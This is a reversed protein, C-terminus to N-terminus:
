AACKANGDTAGMAEMDRECDGCVLRLNPKGWANCECEPCTFKVKSAPRPKKAKGFQGEWCLWPLHHESPMKAFAIAFPGGEMIDHTVKYGVHSGPKDLSRPMLGIEEMKAAWQMNHYGDRGPKGFEEQWHHAMEHVLTSATDRQPRSKLHAPNLSIENAVKKGDASWRKPAFFGLTNAARSFNLLAPPLQGRFLAANFYDFMAQFAAFQAPTPAADDTSPVLPGDTHTTMGRNYNQDHSLAIGYNLIRCPDANAPPIHRNPEPATIPTTLAWLREATALDWRPSSRVPRGMEDLREVEAIIAARAARPAAVLLAEQGINDGNIRYGLRAGSNMCFHEMSSALRHERVYARVGRLEVLTIQSRLLPNFAQRLMRAELVVLEGRARAIAPDYSGSTTASPPARRAAVRDERRSM